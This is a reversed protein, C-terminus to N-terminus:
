WSTQGCEQLLVDCYKSFLKMQMACKWLHPNPPKTYYHDVFEFKVWDSQFATNQKM